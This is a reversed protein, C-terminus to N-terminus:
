ECVLTCDHWTCLGPHTETYTYVIQTGTCMPLEEFHCNEHWLGPKISFQNFTFYNKLYHRQICEGEVKWEYKFGAVDDWTGFIHSSTCFRASKEMLRSTM